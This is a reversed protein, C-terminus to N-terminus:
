RSKRRLIEYMKTGVRCKKSRRNWKGRPCCIIARTTPGSITRGVTITRFSGRACARKKVGRRIVRYNKMM